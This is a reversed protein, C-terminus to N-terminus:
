QVCEMGNLKNQQQQPNAANHCLGTLHSPYRFSSSACHCGILDTCIEQQQKTKEKTPAGGTQVDTYTEWECHQCLNLESPKSKLTTGYINCDDYDAHFFFFQQSWELM